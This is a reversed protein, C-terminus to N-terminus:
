EFVAGIREWNNPNFVSLRNDSYEVDTPYFVRVMLERKDHPDETHPEERIDDKFYLEKTAVHYSGSWTPPQFVKNVGMIIKPEIPSTNKQKASDSGGCGITFLIM